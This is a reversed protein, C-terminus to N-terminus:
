LPRVHAIDHYNAKAGDKKVYEKGLAFYIRCPCTFTSAKPTGDDNVPVAMIYKLLGVISPSKWKVTEEPYKRGPNWFEAKTTIGDPQPIIRVEHAEATQWAKGDPPPPVEGYGEALTKALETNGAEAAIAAAPDTKPAPASPAQPKETEINLAAHGLAIAALLGAMADYPNTGRATVNIALGDKYVTTFAIGGAEPLGPNVEGYRQRFETVREEITEEPM